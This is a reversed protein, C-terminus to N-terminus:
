VDGTLNLEGACFVGKVLSRLLVCRVKEDRSIEELIGWLEGVLAKSLANKAEPRNLCIEVVGELNVVGASQKVVESSQEVAESSRNVVGSSQDVVANSDKAVNLSEQITKKTDKASLNNHKETGFPEKVVRNTHHIVQVLPRIENPINTSFRTGIIPVFTSQLLLKCRFSFM